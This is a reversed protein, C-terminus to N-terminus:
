TGMASERTPMGRSPLNRAPKKQTAVIPADIVTNWTFWAYECNRATVPKSCANTNPRTIATHIPMMRNPPMFRMALQVSLSTGNMHTINKMAHMTTSPALTM